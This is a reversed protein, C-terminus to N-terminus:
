IPTRNLRLWEEQKAMSKKQGKTFKKSKTSYKDAQRKNLEAAGERTIRTRASIRHKCNPHYTPGYPLVDLGMDNPGLAFVKGEYQLCIPTDTGHNSIQVTNIGEEKLQAIHTETQADRGRTRAYMGAYNSPKWLKGGSDILATMKRVPEMNLFKTVQKQLPVGKAFAEKSYEDWKDYYKKYNKGWKVRLHREILSAKTFDVSQMQALRIAYAEEFASVSVSAGAETRAIAYGLIAGGTVISTSNSVFRKNFDLIWDNINRKTEKDNAGELFPAKREWENMLGMFRIVQMGLNVGTIGLATELAGM